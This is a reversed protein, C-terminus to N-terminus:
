TSPTTVIELKVQESRGGWSEDTATSPIWALIQLDSTEHSELAFAPTGARLQGLSGEFLTAGGTMVRVNLSEDLEGTAPIAQLRLDLKGGTANRIEFARAVGLESDTARLAVAEDSGTTTAIAIDLSPAVLLAVDAPPPNLGGDVRWGVLAIAALVVGVVLALWDIRTRTAALLVHEGSRSPAFATNKM